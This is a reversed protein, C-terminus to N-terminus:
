NTLEEKYAAYMSLFYSIYLFSFNYFKFINSLNNRIIFLVILYQIINYNM